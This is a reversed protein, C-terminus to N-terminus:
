PRHRAGGGGQRDQHRHDAPLRVPGVPDGGGPDAPRVRPDARARRDLRPHVRGPVRRRRAAGAPTVPFMSLGSIENLKQGVEPKIEFVTRERENWDELAMGGFGGAPNTLQFTFDTEEVERFVRDAEASWQSAAEITSNGSADIIGFIIGQDETPALEKASLIFMPICLLSIVIWVIYVAPRAALTADLGRTYGAKIRDFARNVRGAFGRDHDGERLLSASMM